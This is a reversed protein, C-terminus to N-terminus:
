GRWKQDRDINLDRMIAIEVFLALRKPPQALLELGAWRGPKACSFGGLMKRRGKARQRLRAMGNSAVSEIM